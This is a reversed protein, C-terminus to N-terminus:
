LVMVEIKKVFSSATVSLVKDGNAESEVVTFNYYDTTTYSQKLEILSRDITSYISGLKDYDNGPKGYANIRLKSINDWQSDVSLLHIAKSPNGRYVITGAELMQNGSVDKDGYMIKVVDNGGIKLEAM